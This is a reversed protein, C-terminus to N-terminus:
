EHKEGKAKLHSFAEAPKFWRDKVIHGIATIPGSWANEGEREIRCNMGSLQEWKSVGLIDLVGRVFIACAPGALVYGGFGQGSGDMERYLFATLIGHDEVGLMTSTIIANERM